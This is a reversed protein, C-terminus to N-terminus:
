PLWNVSGPIGGIDPVITTVSTGDPAMVFIGNTSYSVIHQKDPSYNGYLSLAGLHTLQKPVGGTIPVSWWDSPISGDTPHVLDMTLLTDLGKLIFSQPPDQSSFLISQGDPSFMPVDIVSSMYAGQVPVQDAQSGDTNAVFLYNAGSQPDLTVYTLRSSNDSLRPWYANDLVKEPKGGPYAM